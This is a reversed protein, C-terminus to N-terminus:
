SYIYLQRSEICLRAAELESRLQALELHKRNLRHEKVMMTSWVKSFVSRSVLSVADGSIGLIIPTKPSVKGRVWQRFLGSTMVKLNYDFTPLIKTDTVRRLVSLDNGELIASVVLDEVDKQGINSRWSRSIKVDSAVTTNLTMVQRLLSAPPFIERVEVRKAVQIFRDADRPKISEGVRVALQNAMRARGFACGISAALSCADDVTQEVASGERSVALVDAKGYAEIAEYMSAGIQADWDGVGRERAGSQGSLCPTDRVAGSLPSFMSTGIQVSWENNVPSLTAVSPNVGLGGLSLPTRMLKLAVPFSVGLRWAVEKGVWEWDIKPRRVRAYMDAVQQIWARTSQVTHLEPSGEPQRYLVKPIIRAVYGMCSDKDVVRRLWETRKNSVFNKNPHPKFNLDEYMVLVQIASYWNNFKNDADDGFGMVLETPPCRRDTADYIKDQMMLKKVVLQRSANVVTDLLATLKIGSLVGHDVNCIKRGNYHVTSKWYSSWCNNWVLYYFERVPDNSALEREIVYNIVNQVIVIERKTVMHDFEASDIPVNVADEIGDSRSKMRKFKEEPTVYMDSYKWKKGAQTIAKLMLNMQANMIWDSLVIIRNRAGLEVKVSVKFETHGDNTKLWSRMQRLSYMTAYVPKKPASAMMLKKDGDTVLVEGKVGASSGVTIFNRFDGCYQDETQWKVKKWDLSNVVENVAQEYERYYKEDRVNDINSECWKRIDGVVEGHDIDASSNYGLFLDWDVLCSWNIDIEDQAVKLLASKHKIGKATMARSGQVDIARLYRKISRVESEDSTIHIMMTAAREFCVPMTGGSDYMSMPLKSRMLKEMRIDVGNAWNNRRKSGGSFVAVSARSIMADSFVVNDLWRRTKNSLNSRVYENKLLRKYKCNYDGKVCIIKVYFEALTIEGVKGDLRLTQLTPM